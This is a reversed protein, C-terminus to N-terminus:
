KDLIFSQVATDGKGNCGYFLPNSLIRRYLFTGKVWDAADDASVIVGQSIEINLVETLKNGDM